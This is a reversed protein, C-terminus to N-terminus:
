AWHWRALSSLAAWLSDRPEPGGSAASRGAGARSRRLAPPPGPMAVGSVADRLERLEPSDTMQDNDYM